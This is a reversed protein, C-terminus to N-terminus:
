RSMEQRQEKMQKKMEPSQAQKIINNVYETKQSVIAAEPSCRKIVDRIRHVNHEGSALLTSAMQVDIKEQPVGEKVLKKYGSRYVETLSRQSANRLSMIKDLRNQSEIQQLTQAPASDQENTQMPAIEQEQKLANVRERQQVLYDIGKSLAAVVKECVTNLSQQIKEKVANELKAPIARITKELEDTSNKLDTQVGQFDKWITEQLSQRKEEAKEKEMVYVIIIRNDQFQKQFSEYVGELEAAQGNAHPNNRLDNLVFQLREMTSAFEKSEPMFAADSGKQEEMKKSKEKEM